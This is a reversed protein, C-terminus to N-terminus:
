GDGRELLSGSSKRGRDEQEISKHGATQIKDVKHTGGVRASSDEPFHFRQEGWKKFFFKVSKKILIPRTVTSILATPHSSNKGDGECGRGAAYMTTSPSERVASSSHNWSSRLGRHGVSPM